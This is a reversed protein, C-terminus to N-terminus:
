PTTIATKKTGTTQPEGGAVGGKKLASRREKAACATKKNKLNKHSLLM